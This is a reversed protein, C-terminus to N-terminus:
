HRQYDKAPWRNLIFCVLNLKCIQLHRREMWLVSSSSSPPPLHCLISNYKADSVRHTWAQKHYLTCVGATCNKKWFGECVFEPKVNCKSPIRLIRKLGLASSAKHIHNSRVALMIIGERYEMCLCMHSPKKSVVTLLHRTHISSYLLLYMRSPLYDWMSQVVFM